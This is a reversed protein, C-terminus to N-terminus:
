APWPASERVSGNSISLALAENLWHYELDFEDCAEQACHAAFLAIASQQRSSIHTIHRSLDRAHELMKRAKDFLGTQCYRAGCEIIADLAEEDIQKRKIHSKALMELSADADVGHEGDLALLSRTLLHHNYVWEERADGGTRLYTLDGSEDLLKAALDTRGLSM